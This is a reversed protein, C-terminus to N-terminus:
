SIKFKTNDDKSTLSIRRLFDIMFKKPTTTLINSKKLYSKLREEAEVLMKYDEETNSTSKLEIIINCKVIQRLNNDSEVWFDWSEEDYTIKNEEQKDEKTKFKDNTQTKKEKNSRQIWANRRQRMFSSNWNIEHKVMDVKFNVDICRRLGKKAYIYYRIERFLDKVIYEPLEKIHTFSKICNTTILKNYTVQIQNRRLNKDVSFDYNEAIRNCLNRTYLGIKNVKM